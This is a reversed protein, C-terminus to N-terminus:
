VRLPLVLIEVYQPFLSHNSYIKIGVKGEIGRSKIKLICKERDLSIIDVLEKGEIIEFECQTSRFLAKSGLSNIPIIKIELKSNADAYLQAPNVEVKVEYINYLFYYGFILILIMISVLIMIIEIRKM